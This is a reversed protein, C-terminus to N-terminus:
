DVGLGLLSRVFWKCAERQSNLKFAAGTKWFRILMGSELKRSRM